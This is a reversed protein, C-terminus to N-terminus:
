CCGAWSLGRRCLRPTEPLPKRFNPRRWHWPGSGLRPSVSLFLVKPHRPSIKLLAQALERARDLKGELYAVTADMLLAQANGPKAKVFASVQQRARPLDRAEVALDILASHADPSDPQL